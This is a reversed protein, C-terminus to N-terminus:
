PSAGGVRGIRCAVVHHYRILEQGQLRVVDNDDHLALRYRRRRRRALGVGAPRLATPRPWAELQGGGLLTAPNPKPVPQVAAHCIDLDIAKALSM